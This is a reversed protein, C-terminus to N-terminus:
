RINAKKLEDLFLNWAQMMDKRLGLDFAKLSGQNWLTTEAPNDVLSPTFQNCINFLIRVLFINRGCGM